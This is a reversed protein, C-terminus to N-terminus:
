QKGGYIWTESSFFDEFKKISTRDPIYNLVGAGTVYICSDVIKELSISNNISHLNTVRSSISSIHNKQLKSKEPTLFTAMKKLDSDVLLSGHQCIIKGCIYAAEGSCKKGDVLIDNKGNFESKVDFSSLINNILDHYGCEEKESLLSLVSINLCGLDHYVAGGGSKRRAIIGGTDVFEEAKCESLVNQNRGVVIANDNQWFFLVIVGSKVYQHLDCEIAFNKYVRTSHSRYFFYKM